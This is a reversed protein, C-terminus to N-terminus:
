PTIQFVWGKAHTGGVSFTGYVNGDAGQIANSLSGGGYNGSFGTLTWQGNSPTLRFVRPNGAYVTGLLNGASDWTMSQEPGMTGQLEYLAQLTFGGDSPSLECATIPPAGSVFYLNGAGDLTLGVGPACNEDSFNYLISETWGSGNPTLEFIVGHDNSGGGAAGYLNGANDFVLGGLPQKGDPINQFNHIVTEVWGGNSRSIEYVTGVGATGGGLTAGYINGARDFVLPGYNTGGGDGPGGAFSHLVTETWLCSFAHCISAPPQLRFVVGVGGAGGGATGYLAGDPGFVVGAQPNAGDRGHFAYITSYLWSSGKHTLKFVVGCAPGPSCGNDGGGDTTTGYLNGARDMTLVGAPTGGDNGGTFDHLSTFTQAPMPQSALLTLASVVALVFATKSLLSAIRLKTM